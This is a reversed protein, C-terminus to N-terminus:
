VKCRRWLRWCRYPNHEHVGGENSKSPTRQVAIRRIVKTFVMEGSGEEAIHVARPEQTKPMPKQVVRWEKRNGQKKRCKSVEHGFLHCHNCKIPKWEFIVKQRVLVRQDNIFEIADLFPRAFPVEIM